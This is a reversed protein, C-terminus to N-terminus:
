IPRRRRARRKTAVLRGVALGGIALLILSSPEPVAFVLYSADIL